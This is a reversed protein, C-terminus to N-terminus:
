SSFIPNISPKIVINDNPKICKVRKKNYKNNAMQRSLPNIKHNYVRNYLNHCQKLPKANGNTYESQLYLLIQKIDM